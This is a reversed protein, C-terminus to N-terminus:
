SRHNLLERCYAPLAGYASQLSPLRAPRKVRAITVPGHPKSRKRRLRGWIARVMLYLLLVLALGALSVEGDQWAWLPVENRYYAVSGAASLLIGLLFWKLSARRPPPIGAMADCQRRWLRYRQCHDFDKCSRMVVVLAAVAVFLNGNTVNLYCQWGLYAAGGSALLM